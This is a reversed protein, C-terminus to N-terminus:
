DASQKFFGLGIVALAAVAAAPALAALVEAASAGAVLLNGVAIPGVISGIRGMGAAAGSGTGRVAEPYYSAAVGLLSYQAGMLTVGVLASWVLIMRFDTAASLAALVGILAILAVSLPWRFGLRDSIQGIALAGAVSAFNFALSAQPAIAPSFGKAVVLAPLWNLIIYLIIYTPLLAVWIVLTPAARGQEFLAPANSVFFLHLLIAPVLTFAALQVPTVAFLPSQVIVWLLAYTFAYTPAFGIWTMLPRERVATAFGARPGAEREERTHTERMWLAIAGSVLVPLVGGLYFVFRWDTDPPLNSIFLASMGGGLPLGCFMMTATSARKGPPSIDASIAMLGPLAAGFGFGTLLRAAFLTAFDVALTTALTFIGFTIVAAIFVPKRGLRDMFWGGLGAGLVIGINSISFVFGMEDRSLGLEPAMRPATVGMAQIDYGELVAVAFCLAITIAVGAQKRAPEVGAAM